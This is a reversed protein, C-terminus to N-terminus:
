GAVPEVGQKEVHAKMETFADLGYGIAAFCFNQRLEKGLMDEDARGLVSFATPHVLKSTVTNMTRYEDSFNVVRAIENAKLYRKRVIGQRAKAAKLNAITGDLQITNASPSHFVLWERFSSFVDIADIMGDDYFMRAYSKKALTYKTFVNLELMNRCAWAMFMTPKDFAPELNEYERLIADLLCVLVNQFWGSQTPM